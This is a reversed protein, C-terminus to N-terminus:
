RFYRFINQIQLLVMVYNVFVKTVVRLYYLDGSLLSCLKSRCADFVWLSNTSFICVTKIM